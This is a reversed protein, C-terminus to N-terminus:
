IGKIVLLRDDVLFHPFFLAIHPFDDTERLIKQFADVDRKKGSFRAHTHKVLLSRTIIKKNVMQKDGWICLINNKLDQAFGKLDISFQRSRELFYILM